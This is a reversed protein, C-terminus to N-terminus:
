PDDEHDLPDTGHLDILAKDSVDIVIELWNKNKPTGVSVALKFIAEGPLKLGERLMVKHVKAAKEICNRWHQRDDSVLNEEGMEELKAFLERVFKRTLLARKHIEQGGRPMFVQARAEKLGQLEVIQAHNNVNKRLYVKVPASIYVTPPVAIGVRSLDALAAKQIAQASMPRMSAFFAYATGDVDLTAMDGLEHTMLDKFNWQIAKPTRRFILEGVFARDEELSRIKGGITLIRSATLNGKRSVLDCDPSIIMRVIKERPALFLDGLAFRSRPRMEWSNFRMRHFFEAFRASPLPHAGGIMCTLKENDLRSFDETTWEVNVDVIARLSEGLFWELYDAFPQGEDYLRFRLLYAFDKIDFGRLERYLQQLAKEAGIKWTKLAAELTRNFEFGGSTDILVDAADGSATLAQGAGRVWQKDLYSFRLSMVRDELRSLYAEKRNEVDRSSMLVVAPNANVNEALMKKLLEISRIRDGPKQGNTIDTTARAPPSLYFDMFILDPRLNRYVALATPGTGVTKIHAEDGCRRLLELLPDLDDLAAGKAAAFTGGPDVSDTRTKLFVSYLTAMAKTIASAELENNTLARVAENCDEECLLNDSVHERLDRATLIDVLDGSLQPDFEPPDYADDVVLIREVASAKFMAIIEPTYNM